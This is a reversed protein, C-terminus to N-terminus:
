ILVSIGKSESVILTILQDLTPHEDFAINYSQGHIKKIFNQNASQHLFKICANSVDKSYVFSLRDIKSEIQSHIPKTRMEKIWM